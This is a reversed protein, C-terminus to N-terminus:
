CGPLKGMLTGAGASADLNRQKKTRFGRNVKSAAQANDGYDQFTPKLHAKRGLGQDQHWWWMRKANTLHIEECDFHSERPPM